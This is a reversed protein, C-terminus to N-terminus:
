YLKRSIINKKNKQKVNYAEERFNIKNLGSEIFMQMKSQTM